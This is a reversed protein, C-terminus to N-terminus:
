APRLCCTAPGSKASQLRSATDRVKVETASHGPLVQENATLCGSCWVTSLAAKQRLVIGVFHNVAGMTEALGRGEREHCFFIKCFIRNIVLMILNHQCPLEGGGGWTPAALLVFHMDLVTAPQLAAECPSRMCHCTVFVPTAVQESIYSPNLYTSSIHVTRHQLAVPAASSLLSSVIPMARYTSNAALQLPAWLAHSPRRTTVLVM